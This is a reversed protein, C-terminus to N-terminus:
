LGRKNLKLSIQRLKERRAMESKPTGARGAIGMRSQFKILNEANPKKLKLYPLLILLLTSAQKSWLSWRFAPRRNGKPPKCDLVNGCGTVSKAWAVTARDTMRIQLGSRYHYGSKSMKIFNYTKVRQVFISGEGDILGALYAADTESMQKVSKFNKAMQKRESKM